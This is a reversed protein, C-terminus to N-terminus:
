NRTVVVEFNVKGTGKCALGAPSNNSKV